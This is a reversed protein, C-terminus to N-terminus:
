KEVFRKIRKYYDRRECIHAAAIKATQLVRGGTIDRHEREIEMGERLLAPTIGCAKAKRGLRNLARKATPLPIRGTKPLGRLGAFYFDTQVPEGYEDIEVDDIKVRPERKAFKEWSATSQSGVRDAGRSVVGKCGNKQVFDRLRTLMVPYLGRGHMADEINGETIAAWGGPPCSRTSIHGVYNDDADRVLLGYSPHGIASEYKKPKFTLGPFDPLGDLFFVNKRPDEPHLRDPGVRPNLKEWARTAMSSRQFGESKLGKCGMDKLHKRLRLLMEQYLKKGRYEPLIEANVVEGHKEYGPLDCHRTIAGVAGILKKGDYVRLVHGDQKKTIRYKFKDLDANSTMACIGRLRYKSM